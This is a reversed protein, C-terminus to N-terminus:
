DPSYPLCPIIIMSQPRFLSANGINQTCICHWSLADLQRQGVTRIKLSYGWGTGWFMVTFSPVSLKAWPASSWLHQLFCHAYEKQQAGSKCRGKWDKHHQTRGTSNPRQITVTSTEDGTIARLMFTPDDLVSDRICM